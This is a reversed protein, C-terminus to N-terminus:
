IPIQGKALTLKSCYELTGKVGQIFIEKMRLPETLISYFHSKLNAKATLFFLGVLCFVALDNWLAWHIHNEEWRYSSLLLLQGWDDASTKSILVKSWHSYHFVHMFAVQTKLPFLSTTVSIYSVRRWFHMFTRYISPSCLCFITGKGLCNIIM